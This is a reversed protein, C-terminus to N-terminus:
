QFRPDRVLEDMRSMLAAIQGVTPLGEAPAALADVILRRVVASRDPLGYRTALVSLASWDDASLKLSRAPTAAM